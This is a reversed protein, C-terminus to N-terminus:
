FKQIKYGYEILLKFYKLYIKINKLHIKIKFKLIKM